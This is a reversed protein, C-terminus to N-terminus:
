RPYIEGVAGFPNPGASKTGIKFVKLHVTFTQFHYDTVQRQLRPGQARVGGLPLLLRLEKRAKCPVRDCSGGSGAPVRVAPPVVSGHVFPFFNSPLTNFSVGPTM